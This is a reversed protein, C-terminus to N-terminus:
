RPWAWVTYRFAVVPDALSPTRDLTLLALSGKATWVCIGRGPVWEHLGRIQETLEATRHTTCTAPSAAAAPAVGVLLANNKTVVHNASGWPTLDIGPIRQDTLEGRDVDFGQKDNMGRVSGQHLVKGVAKVSSSATIAPPSLAAPRPQQALVAVAGTAGLATGLVTCTAAALLSVRRGPLRRADRDQADTPHIPGRNGPPEPPRPQAPPEAVPLTLDRWCARWREVVAPIEEEPHDCALLCATVFSEVFELRPPRPLGRGNLTYSITSTPLADV